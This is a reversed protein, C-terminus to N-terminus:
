DEGDVLKKVEQTLKDPKAGSWKNVLEGNRFVLFTPISLVKFTRAFNMNEDTNIKAFTVKDHYQEALKEFVPSIAKCPACWEAWTDVIVTEHSSIVQEFDNDTMVILHDSM